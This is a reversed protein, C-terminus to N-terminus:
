YLKKCNLCVGEPYPAHGGRPCVAKGAFNPFPDPQCFACTTNPGHKYKCLARKEDLYRAYPLKDVKIVPGKKMCNICEQGKSNDCDCTKITGNLKAQKTEEDEPIISFTL